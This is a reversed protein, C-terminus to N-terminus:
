PKSPAPAEVKSPAPADVKVDVKSPVQINPGTPQAQPRFAGGFYVFAAIALVVLVLVIGVLMGTAVGTGGDSHTHAM